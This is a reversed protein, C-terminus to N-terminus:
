APDARRFLFHVYGRARAESRATVPIEVGSFRLFPLDAEPQDMRHLGTIQADVVGPQNLVCNTLDHTRLVRDFRTAASSFPGEGSGDLGLVNELDSQLRRHDTQPPTTIEIHVGIPVPSPGTVTLTRGLLRRHDLLAQVRSILTEPVSQTADALIACQLRPWPEQGILRIKAARVGEVSCAIAELEEPTAAANDDNLYRPARHRILAISEADRAAVSGLPNRVSILRSEFLEQEDPKAAIMGIVDPGIDGPGAQCRAWARYECGASPRKGLVGDGFRLQLSGNDNDDVVFLRDDPGANLLDQAPRWLAGALTEDTASVPHEELTIAPLSACPEDRSLFQAASNVSREKPTNYFRRCSPLPRVTLKPSWTMEADLPPLLRIPDATWGYEIEIANCAAYASTKANAASIPLDFPLADEHSWALHLHYGSESGSPAAIVDVETLRVPHPRAAGSRDILTESVAPNLVILDGVGLPPSEPPAGPYALRASVAGARLTYESLGFDHIRVRNNEPRALLPACTEYAVAGRSIANAMTQRPIVPGLAIDSARNLVPTGAQLRLTDRVEVTLLTRQSAGHDCEHGLLRAHRRASVPLRATALYAENGVFDQRYSLYDGVYALLEVLSEGTDAPTQADWDPLRASLHEMMRARMTEYDKALYDIQRTPTSRDPPATSFHLIASDHDPDILGGPHRLMQLCHDGPQEGLQLRDELRREILLEIVDHRASPELGIASLTLNPRDDLRRIEFDEPKLASSLSAGAGELRATVIWRQPGAPRVQTDILAIASDRRLTQSRENDTLIDPYRM